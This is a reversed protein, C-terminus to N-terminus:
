TSPSARGSASHFDPMGLYTKTLQAALTRMAELKQTAAALTTEIMAVEGLWGHEVSAEPIGVLNEIAVDEAELPEFATGDHEDDVLRRREFAGAFAEVDAQGAGAILEDHTAVRVEDPFDASGIEGASQVKRRGGCPLLSTRRATSDGAFNMVVPPRATVTYLQSSAAPTLSSPNAHAPRHDVAVRLVATSVWLEVWRESKPGIANLKARAALSTPSLLSTFRRFGAVLHANRLMTTPSAEVTM